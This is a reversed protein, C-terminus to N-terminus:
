RQFIGTLTGSALISDSIARLFAERSLGPPLDAPLSLAYVTFLYHHAAGSPPCSGNYGFNGFGNKGHTGFINQEGAPIGEPLGSIDASINYLLWHTFTGLPADPDTVLLAFSGTGPPAAQWDLAPSTDDGECTYTLPITEQDAFAPSTLAMIGAQPMVGQDPVSPLLAGAALLGLLAFLAGGATCATNVGDNGLWRWGRVQQTPTGCKHLPHAETEKGCAPCHYIAQVTAGLLSDILSGLLGALTVVALSALWFLREYGAPLAQEPWGWAALVAILLAGAGAALTGLLTIGGSTGPEVSQCTTILRPKRRALIGLETAWTDANAAALAGAGMAFLPVSWHPFAAQLIVAAGAIGGNALVQAADRRSGKAYKEEAAHKRRKFLKSLLTSSIFFGLLLATWAAGGLGFVVTGLGVAALAGSLSLSRAAYAVTSIVVALGFGILLQTWSFAAGFVNM